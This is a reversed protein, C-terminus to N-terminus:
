KKLKFGDARKQTPRQRNILHTGLDRLKAVRGYQSLEPRPRHDPDKLDKKM